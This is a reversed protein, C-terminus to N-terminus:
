RSFANAILSALTGTTIAGTFNEPRIAEGLREIITPGDGIGAQSFRKNLHTFGKLTLKYKCSEDARVFGEELLFEVTGEFIADVRKIRLKKETLKATLLEKKQTAKERLDPTMVDAMESIEIMSTLTSSERELDWLEEHSEIESIIKNKPLSIAIPFNEHLTAFIHSAFTSFLTSNNM